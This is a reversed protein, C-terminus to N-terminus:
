DVALEVPAVIMASADSGSWQPLECCTAQWGHHVLRGRFPPGGSVNGSLRYHATDFNDPADLESGEQQDALPRIAFMREIVAECDRLVDRAAAGIQADSYDSLPEKVIDLFRADRQLAALLAIADNRTPRPPPTITQEESAQAPHPSVTAGALLRETQDAFSSDFLVRMFARIALSLRM